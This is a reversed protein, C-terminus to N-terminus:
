LCSPSLSVPLGTFSDALVQQCGSVRTRSEMTDKDSSVFLHGAFHLVIPLGSPSIFGLGGQDKDCRIKASDTCTSSRSTGGTRAHPLSTCMQKHLVSLSQFLVLCFSDRVTDRSLLKLRHPESLDLTRRKNTVKKCINFIDREM